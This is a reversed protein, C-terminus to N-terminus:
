RMVACGTARLAAQAAAAACAIVALIAAKRKQRAM